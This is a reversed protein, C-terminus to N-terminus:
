PEVMSASFQHQYIYHPNFKVVPVKISWFHGSLACFAAHGCLAVHLSRVARLTAKAWEQRQMSKMSIQHNSTYQSFLQAIKDRQIAVTRRLESVEEMLKLVLSKLDAHSRGDLDATVNGCHIRSV